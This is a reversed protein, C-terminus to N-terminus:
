TLYLLFIYFIFLLYYNISLSLWALVIITHSLINKKLYQGSEKNTNTFCRWGILLYKHTLDDTIRQQPFIILFLIEEWGLFFTGHLCFSSVSFLKTKFLCQFLAICMVPLRSLYQYFSFEWKKISDPLHFLMSYMNELYIIVPGWTLLISM